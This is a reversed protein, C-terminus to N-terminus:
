DKARGVSSLCREYNSQLYVCKKNRELNKPLFNQKFNFNKQTQNTHNQKETPQLKSKKSIKKIACELVLHLM